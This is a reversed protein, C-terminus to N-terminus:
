VHRETDLDKDAGHQSHDDERAAIARTCMAHARRKRRANRIVQAGEATVVLMTLTELLLWPLNM